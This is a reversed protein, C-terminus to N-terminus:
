GVVFRDISVGTGHSAANKTGLVLIKITHVADSLGSVRIRSAIATARYLDVTGILGGDIYIAAKGGTSGLIAYWDIQTGRFTFSASAGKVDSLAYHGGSAGSFAASRWGYVVSPTRQLTGGGARFADVAVYTGTGASSGKLGSVTIVVTHSGATLGTFSWSALYLTTKRYNNVTGFSVGDIKVSAIGQNPGLVTFWQLSTGTFTYTARAGASHETTYSGGLASSTTITRWAYSAAPSTEEQVLAGRFDTSSTPISAGGSDTILTSATAPNVTATYHQGPVLRATPTLWASRVTSGGCSTVASSVNKCVLTGTLTTGSGTVGFVFNSTTVGGVDQSFTEVLPATLTSPATLTATTTATVTFCGSCTASQTDPNTVTVDGAGLTAGSGITINATVHSSDVFTTSNVTIGTGSFSATAGSVFNTGIVSVDITSGREGVSPSASTVTPPPTVTFCGTCTDAQTDPNTVTVDRAGLTAGSTITINATVHSSDVFTTSNVTIGTGSFSAVAGSVFNTGIVSVDITTGRHGSNPSTSTVTPAPLIVTFCGTCTASQTDPNTVTVDRASLTAGSAITINATVHSSDVFTTSNV